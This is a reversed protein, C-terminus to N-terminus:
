SETQNKDPLQVLIIAVFSIVCGLMERKSLAQGLIIWGAIVSIVSELSMIMSAVTPNLGKQGIIQLTYAVGSSFAGAYLIPLWAAIINEIDPSEFLFMCVTSLVACTVFQICSLKVGDVKPSFYDITLIHFAFCIACAFVLIDGKQLRLDASTMCLLYMGACALAVAIWIRLNTKKGIFIGFVPVIIMYMATIFGAKGVTTEKIGYQQLCSAVFLCVGCCIGGIVLTKATYKETKDAENGDTQNVKSKSMMAIVPLLVVAGIVNRTAVFTFPEVYEMGVSQAVFAVGWITAALFLLFSQRLIFKNM